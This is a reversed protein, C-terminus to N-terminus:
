SLCLVSSLSTYTFPFAPTSAHTDYIPLPNEFVLGLNVLRYTATMSSALFVVHHVLVHAECPASSLGGCGWSVESGRCLSFRRKYEGGLDERREQIRRKGIGDGRRLPVRVSFQARRAKRQGRPSNGTISQQLARRCARLTSM